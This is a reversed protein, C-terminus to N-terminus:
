RDKKSVYQIGYTLGGVAIVALFVIVGFPFRLNFLSSILALSLSAGFMMALSQLHHKELRAKNELLPNGVLGQNFRTLDWSALAATCGIMMLPLSLNVTVGIAALFFYVVLLGSASWFVSRKKMVVWFLATGLCAPLILWYGGLIYGAGLCAAAIMLCITNTISLIKM